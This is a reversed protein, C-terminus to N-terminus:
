AASEITLLHPGGVGGEARAASESVRSGPVTRGLTGTYSLGTERGRTCGFESAPRRYPRPSMAPAVEVLPHKPVVEPHGVPLQGPGEDGRRSEQTSPLLTVWYREGSTVRESLPVPPSSVPVLDSPWLGRRPPVARRRGPQCSARSSTACINSTARASACISCKRSGPPRAPELNPVSPRHVGWM